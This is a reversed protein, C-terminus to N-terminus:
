DGGVAWSHGSPITECASLQRQKVRGCDLRGFVLEGALSMLRLCTRESRRAVSARANWERGYIGLEPERLRFEISVSRKSKWSVKYWYIITGDDGLSLIKEDGSDSAPM